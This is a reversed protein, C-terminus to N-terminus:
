TNTRADDFLDDMIEAELNQLYDALHWAAMRDGVVLQIGLGLEPHLELRVPAATPFWAALHKRLMRDDADDLILGSQVILEQGAARHNLVKKRGAVKELFVRLVQRNLGQDSLDRLTKDGIQVVQHVLRRKLRELFVQRDRSLNDMWAKRLSEVEEKAKEMATERWREVEQRTDAMLSERADALATKERELALTRARAEREAQRARGLADAMKKERKAMADRTPKFLFRNLLWILILFNVIQAFVTFGDILV